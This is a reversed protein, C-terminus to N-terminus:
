ARAPATPGAADGPRALGTVQAIKSNHTDAVYLNDTSQDVAIGYPTNLKSATAAAGSTEGGAAPGGDGHEGFATLSGAAATTTGDALAALVNASTNSVYVTGNVASVGAPLRLGGGAGTATYTLAQLVPSVAAGASAAGSTALGAAAVAAAAGALRRRYLLKQSEVTV